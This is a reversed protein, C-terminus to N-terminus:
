VMGGAPFLEICLGRADALTCPKDKPKLADLGTETFAV